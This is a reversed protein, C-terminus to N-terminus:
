QVLRRKFSAVSWGYRRELEGAVMALQAKDFHNPEHPLHFKTNTGRFTFRIQSGHMNSQTAGTNRMAATFKDGSLTQGSKSGARRFMVNHFIALSKRGISIRRLQERKIPDVNVIDDDKGPPLQQSYASSPHRKDRVSRAKTREQRSPRDQALAPKSCLPLM